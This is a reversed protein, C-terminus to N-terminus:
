RESTKGIVVSPDGLKKDIDALKKELVAKSNHLDTQTEFLVHRTDEGERHADKAKARVHETVQSVNGVAVALETLFKHTAAQQVELSALRAALNEQGSIVPPPAQPPPVPTPM